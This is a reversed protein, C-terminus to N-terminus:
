AAIPLSLDKAGNCHYSEAPATAVCKGLHGATLLTIRAAPQGGLGQDIVFTSNIQTHRLLTIPVAM